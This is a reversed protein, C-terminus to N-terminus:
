ESDLWDDDLVREIDLKGRPVLVQVVGQSPAFVVTGKHSGDSYVYTLDFSRGDVLTVKNKKAKVADRWRLKNLPNLFDTTM